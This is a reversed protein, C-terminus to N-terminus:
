CANFVNANYWNLRQKNLLNYWVYANKAVSKYIKIAIVRKLIFNRLTFVM